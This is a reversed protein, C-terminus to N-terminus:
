AVIRRQYLFWEGVILGLAALTLYFWLSRAGRRAAAATTALSHTRPRLDSEERDALNVAIETVLPDEGSFRMTADADSASVLSAEPGLQYIGGDLLPGITAIGQDMGVTLPAGDPSLLLHSVHESAAAPSDVAVSTAVTAIEGTPIAKHLEGTQGLFWNVANTMMVPFAIRLPLDGDDLNASLVVTRGEPRLVSAMLTAGEPTSLLPEAEGDIEIARGGPLAVNTLRVHSLLPSDEAQESIIPLDLPPGLRWLSSDAQPDIVLLPGSPLADPVTQHLVTFGGAAPARPPRNSVNLEVLPIAELVSRLYLSERDTVLTVPIAARRPLIARAVNDTPLADVVDLAAQLIGGGASAQEIMKRWPKDPELRLPLVDVLEDGLTIRLRCEVPVEGFNEVEVLVAFGIPDILSRRTQFSTIAVNDLREGVSFLQVDPEDARQDAAEFCADSVVIIERRQEDSALRRAAVIADDIRAPADTLQVARVADDVTPGFDSMGVAVSVMGGATMLAIEDGERLEAVRDLAVQQALEWRSRGAADVAAMSASNDLVLVVQRRQRQQWKWLPDVLAAVVLLLFALQLLLSLIHRLRQWLSRQRKEDFIQDWFLLTAINERRLRTKLIFLIVIPIALLLWILREPSTLNFVGIVM